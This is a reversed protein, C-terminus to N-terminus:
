KNLNIHNLLEDLTRFLPINYKNCVIQVNGSRYFEDPCCVFIKRSKAYLGLELLSIPSKSDPLLNMIIIDAKDMADLEWSVQKFFEPNDFEQKWSDDWEDRRPNLITTTFAEKFYRVVKQQWDDSKGMEITGALFIYKGYGVPIYNPAKIEKAM